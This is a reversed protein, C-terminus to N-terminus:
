RGLKKIVAGMGQNQISTQETYRAPMNPTKWGGSRQIDLVSCGNEALTVAGGVRASHGTFVESDIEVLVSLRKFSELVASYQMGRQTVAKSPTLSRLLYGCVTLSMEKWRSILGLTYSSLVRYQGKQEQDTKSKAIFMTKKIFSIDNCQIDCLESARLLGDFMINVMVKDRLQLLCNEDLKSNIVTLLESTLAPAQVQFSSKKKLLLKLWEKFLINSFPNPWELVDIFKSLPAKKRVITARALDKEILKSFYSKLLSKNYTLDNKLPELNEDDCWTFFHKMDYLYAKQTNAPLLNFIESYEHLNDRSKRPLSIQLNSAIM